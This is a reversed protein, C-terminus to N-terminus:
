NQCVAEMNAARTLYLGWCQKNIKRALSITYENFGDAFMLSIAKIELQTIETKM